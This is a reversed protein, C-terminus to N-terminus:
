PEESGSANAIHRREKISTLLNKEETTKGKKRGATMRCKNSSFRNFIDLSLFAISHVSFVPQGLLRQGIM